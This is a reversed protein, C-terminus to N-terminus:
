EPRFQRADLPSQPFDGRRLILESPRSVAGFWNERMELAGGETAVSSLVVGVGPVGEVLSWAVDVDLDTILVVVDADDVVDRAAVAVARAYGSAWAADSIDVAEAVM